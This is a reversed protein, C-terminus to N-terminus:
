YRSEGHFPVVRGVLSELLSLEEDTHNIMPAPSFPNTSNEASIWVPSEHHRTKFRTTKDAAVVPTMDAEGYCLCIYMRKEETVIYCCTGRIGIVATTTQLRKPGKGFVSLLKGSVIRLGSILTAGYFNVNTNERQLYADQGIVYIIESKEGTNVSDGALVVQGEYAAKGNINADGKIRYVGQPFLGAALAGHIVGPISAVVGTAVLNRLFSRRDSM